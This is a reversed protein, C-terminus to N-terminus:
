EMWDERHTTHWGGCGRCFYARIPAFGEEFKDRNFEIFREAKEQTEFVLKHRGCLPCFVRNKPKGDDKDPSFSDKHIRNYRMRAERKRKPNKIFM